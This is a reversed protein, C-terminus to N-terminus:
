LTARVYQKRWPTGWFKLNFLEVGSDELYICNTLLSKVSRFELLTSPKSLSIEHNGAIVIKYFHPLKGLWFNFERAVEALSKGTKNNYFDGAFVFIDGAEVPFNVDTTCGHTDSTCVVL